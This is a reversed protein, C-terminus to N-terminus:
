FRKICTKPSTRFIARNSVISMVFGYNCEIRYHSYPMIPPHTNNTNTAVLVNTQTLLNSLKSCTLWSLSTSLFILALIQIMSLIMSPYSVQWDCATLNQIAGAAAEMTISNTCHKLITAYLTHIESGWLSRYEVSAPPLQPPVRGTVCASFIAKISKLRFNVNYHLNVYESGAPWERCFNNERRM